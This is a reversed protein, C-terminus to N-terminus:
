VAVDVEGDHALLEEMLCGYMVVDAPSETFTRRAEGAAACPNTALALTMCAAYGYYTGDGSPRGSDDHRYSVRMNQFDFLETRDQRDLQLGRELLGIYTYTPDTCHKRAMGVAHQEIRTLWADVVKTPLKDFEAHGWYVDRPCSINTALVDFLSM